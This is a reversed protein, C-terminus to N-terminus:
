EPAHIVVPPDPITLVFENTHRLAVSAATRPVARSATKARRVGAPAASAETLMALRAKLGALTVMLTPSLTVHVFM